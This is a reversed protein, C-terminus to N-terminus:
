RLEKTKDNWRIVGNLMARQVHRTPDVEREEFYAHSEFGTRVQVGQAQLMKGFKDVIYQELEPEEVDFVYLMAATDEYIPVVDSGGLDAYLAIQPNQRIVCKFLHPKKLNSQSFGMETLIIANAFVLFQTKPYMPVPKKVLTWSPKFVEYWPRFQPKPQRERVLGNVVRDVIVRRRVVDEQYKAEQQKAELHRTKCEGCNSPPINITEDAIVKNHLDILTDWSVKKILVPHGSDRYLARTKEEPAHTNVIEVIITKGDPTEIILDSRTQAVIMKEKSITVGRSAVNKEVVKACRVGEYERGIGGCKVGFLYESGEELHREFSEIIIDQAYTHLANDPDPRPECVVQVKHAFHWRRMKGRKAVMEGDCDGCQFPRPADRERINRRKGQGDLAHSYLVNSM